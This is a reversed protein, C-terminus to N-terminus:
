SRKTLIISNRGNVAITHEFVASPSRDKTTISWGDKNEYIVSPKGLAYIVEIALTMGELLVPTSEIPGKMVGPIQPDEHLVRGIGHGVLTRVVSYGSSEITSQIASSIHGVRSGARASSIAKALAEEGVQLFRVKEDRERNGIGSERNGIIKTWATDTHFGGYLMGIDITLIDGDKPVYESPVGHVVVDNVCLCTAWRYGSVTQFSPTGGSEKILKQAEQEIHNLTVGVSAIDSLHTLISGLKRGGEAMVAIESETKIQIM